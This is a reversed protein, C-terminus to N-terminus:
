LVRPSFRLTTICLGISIYQDPFWLQLVCIVGTREKFYIQRIVLFVAPTCTSNQIFLVSIGLFPTPTTFLNTFIRTFSKLVFFLLSYVKYEQISLYVPSQKENAFVRSEPEILERLGTKSMFNVCPIGLKNM